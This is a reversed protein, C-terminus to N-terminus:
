GSFDNVKSFYDIKNMFMIDPSKDVSIFIQDPHNKFKKKFDQVKPNFTTCDHIDLGSIAAHSKIRALTLESVNENRATNQFNLVLNDIELINAPDKFPSGIGRNKGLKIIDIINSPIVINTRNHINVTNFSTELEFILNKLKKSRRLDSKQEFKFVNNNILNIFFFM